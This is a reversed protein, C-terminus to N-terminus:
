RAELKSVHGPDFVYETNITSELDGAFVARPELLGATELLQESEHFFYYSM